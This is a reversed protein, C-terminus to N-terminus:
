FILFPIKTKFRIARALAYFNESCTSGKQSYAFLPDNKQIPDPAGARLVKRLM